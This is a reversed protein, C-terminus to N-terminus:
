GNKRGHATVVYSEYQKDEKKIETAGTCSLMQFSEFRRKGQGSHSNTLLEVLQAVSACAAMPVAGTGQNATMDPVM